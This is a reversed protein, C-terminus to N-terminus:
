KDQWDQRSMGCASYLKSFFPKLAPGPADGPSYTGFESVVDVLCRGDPGPRVRMHGEPTPMYLDRGKLNEMGAIWKFPPKVGIEKLFAGCKVLASRLPVDFPPVCGRGDYVSVTLSRADVTWMEGNVFAFLVGAATELERDVVAYTGTGDESRVFGLGSWRDGLPFLPAPRLVNELAEISWTRGAGVIPMIRFWCVPGRALRLERVELVDKVLGIPEDAAKWRGNGDVPQKAVFVPPKPATPQASKFEDSALVMRIASELEKALQDRAKKRGSEDLEPSCHYTIPNRLHKLDFPMADSPEGFATNMVPVIRAHGLQKLAWGYEILVNPNPTPRGDPRDAIFTLDPLFVAARDIKRFITEVIPPSGPVDKTDRDIQLEREAEEISTGDSIHAVARELAREIFNRGERTPTDAQWSFFVTNPM